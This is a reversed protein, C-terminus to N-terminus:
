KTWGKGNEDVFKAGKPLKDFEEKSTIRPLAGAKAEGGLPNQRIHEATQRAGPSLFDRMPTRMDSSFKNKIAKEKGELLEMSYQIAAQIQKPSGAASFLKAMEEQEKQNLTGAGRFAKAVENGVAAAVTNFAAGEPAGFQTALKVKIANLATSDGTKLAEQMTKGAEWLTGLHNYATDMAVMSKGTAGAASYEKRQQNRFAYEGQSWEGRTYDSVLKLLRPDKAQRPNGTITEQYDGLRQVQSALVPPLNNLVSYDRSEFPSVVPQYGAATKPLPPSTQAHPDGGEQTPALPPPAGGGTGAAAAAPDVPKGDKVVWGYLQNYVDGNPLTVNGGADVKPKTKAPDVLKEYTAFDGKLIAGQAAVRQAPPLAQLAQQVEPSNAYTRWKEAQDLEAKQSKVQQARLAQQAADSRLKMMGEPAEAIAGGMQAVYQARQAPMINDGAAVGLLGAKILSSWLPQRRDAETLGLEDKATSDGVLGDLLGAM